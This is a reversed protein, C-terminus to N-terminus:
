AEFLQCVQKHGILQLRPQGLLGQFVNSQSLSSAPEICRLGRLQQLGKFSGCSVFVSGRPSVPFFERSVGRPVVRVPCSFGWIPVFGPKDLQARSFRRMSQFPACPWRRGFHGHTRFRCAVVIFASARGSLSIAFTEVLPGVLNSSRKILMIMCHSFWSILAITSLPASIVTTRFPM